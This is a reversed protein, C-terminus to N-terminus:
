VANDQMVNIELTGFVKDEQHEFSIKNDRVEQSKSPEANVKQDGNKGWLLCYLGVVM